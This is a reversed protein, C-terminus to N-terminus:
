PTSRVVLDDGWGQGEFAIFGPSVRAAFTGLTIGEVSASVTQAVPDVTISVPTFGEIFTYGSALVQSGIMLEYYGNTGTLPAVQTLRLWIQGSVPLNGNLASSGTLGFGVYSGALPSPYVEASVTYRGAIGRFPAILDPFRVVGDTWSSFAIGNFPAPQIPSALTEYPNLSAFAFQWGPTLDPTSWAINKSGLYELWYGALGGGAFVQRLNGNGGQPRSYDPAPGPGFSERLVVDPAPATQPLPNVFTTTTGGGGGTGGSAFAQTSVLAALIAAPIKVIPSEPIPKGTLGRVPALLAM